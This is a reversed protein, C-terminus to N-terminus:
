SDSAEFNVVRDFTADKQTRYGDAFGDIADGEGQFPPSVRPMM